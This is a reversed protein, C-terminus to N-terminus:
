SPGRTTARMVESNAVSKFRSPNADNFSATPISKLYSKPFLFSHPMVGLKWIEEANIVGQDEIFQRLETVYM